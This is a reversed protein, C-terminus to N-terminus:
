SEVRRMKSRHEEKEATPGRRRESQRGSCPVQQKDARGM